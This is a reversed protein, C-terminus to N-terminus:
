RMTNGLFDTSIAEKYYNYYRDLEASHTKAYTRMYDLFEDKYGNYSSINLMQDRARGEAEDLYQAWKNTTYKGMHDENKTTKM